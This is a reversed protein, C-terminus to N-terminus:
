KPKTLLAEPRPKDGSKKRRASTRTMTSKSKLLTSDSGNINLTRQQKTGKTIANNAASRVTKGLRMKDTTLERRAASFVM